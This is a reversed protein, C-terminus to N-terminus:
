EPWARDLVVARASPDCERGSHGPCADSPHYYGRRVAQRYAWLVVPRRVRMGFGRRALGAAVRLYGPAADCWTHGPRPGAAGAPYLFVGRAPKGSQYSFSM